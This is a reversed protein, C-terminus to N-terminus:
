DSVQQGRGRDTLLTFYELVVTRHESAHASRRGVRDILRSHFSYDATAFGSCTYRSKFGSLLTFDSGFTHSSIGSGSTTRTRFLKDSATSFHARFPDVSRGDSRGPIHCGRACVVAHMTSAVKSLVM